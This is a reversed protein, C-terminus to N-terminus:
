DKRISDISFACWSLTYMCNRAMNVSKEGNTKEEIENDIKMMKHKKNKTKEKTNVKQRWKNMHRIDDVIPAFVHAM